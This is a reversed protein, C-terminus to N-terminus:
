CAQRKLGEPKQIPLFLSKEQFPISTKLWSKEVDSGAVVTDQLGV